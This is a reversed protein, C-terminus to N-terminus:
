CVPLGVCNFLEGGGELCLPLGICNCLGGREASQSALVPAVDGRGRLVTPPWYLHM